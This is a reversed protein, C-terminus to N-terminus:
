VNGCIRSGGRKGQSRPVKLTEPKFLVKYDLEVRDPFIMVQRIMTLCIAQLVGPDQIADSLDLIRKLDESRQSSVPMMLDELATEYESIAANLSDMKAKADISRIVGDAIADIIRSRRERLVVLEKRIKGARHHQGEALTGRETDLVAALKEWFDPRIVKKEAAELIVRDLEKARIWTNRCKPDGRGKLRALKGGGCSYYRIPEQNSKGGWSSYYPAGCIGCMVLGRLLLPESKRCNANINWYKPRESRVRNAADAMEKTIIPEHANESVVWQEKSKHISTGGRKPLRTRNYVLHGLYVLQHKALINHIQTSNWRGGRPTPVGDANLANAVDMMSTGKAYEAYIRSVVPATEPDPAYKMQVVGKDNEVPIKKMGFPPTGGQAFGRSASEKAGRLSDEALRLSYFENVSDLIANVIAGVPGEVMPEAVTVLDIGQRRLLGRFASAQEVSRAIRDSKWTIIAKAPCQRSRVLSLMRQFAPREDTTGSYADDVFQELIEYGNAKAYRRIENIQAPISLGKDAQM